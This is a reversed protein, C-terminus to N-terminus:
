VRSESVGTEVDCYTVEVSQWKMGGVENRFKQVKKLSVIVVNVIGKIKDNMEVDDDAVVKSKIGEVDNLKGMAKQFKNDGSEKKDVSEGGIEAKVCLVLDKPRKM